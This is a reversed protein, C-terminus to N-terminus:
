SGHPSISPHIGTMGMQSYHLGARKWDFRATFLVGEHGSECLVSLAEDVEVTRQLTISGNKWGFIVVNRATGPCAYPQESTLSMYIKATGLTPKVSLKYGDLLSSQRTHSSSPHTTAVSLIVSHDQEQLQQLQDGTQTKARVTRTFM